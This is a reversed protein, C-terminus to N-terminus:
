RMGEMWEEGGDYWQMQVICCTEDNRLSGMGGKGWEQDGRGEEGGGREEGRVGGATRLDGVLPVYARAAGTDSPESGARGYVQPRAGWPTGRWGETHSKDNYSDVRPLAGGKRASASPRQENQTCPRFRFHVRRDTRSLCSQAHKPDNSSALVWNRALRPDRASM